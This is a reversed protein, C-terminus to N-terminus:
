KDEQALFDNIVRYATQVQPFRPPLMLFAHLADKMRYIKVISGAERLCRGYYEGEDRLPCFEATIILTRPQGSLDSELLPAFLPSYFDDPKGSYLEMFEQVRRSTLLYGTGNEKVSLFPSTESHDNFMAPYLLIQRKPHFEGRDRAMLSVAAALTGGASDGIITINEPCIGPIRGTFFERAAAYCDEPGAPFRYEPALRYDVCAVVCNTAKALDVCVGTYNEISGTVWGGGHFFLLTRFPGRGKPSFMRVPVTHGGCCVEHDCMRYDTPMGRLRATLLEFQREAKYSKKVEPELATIAKLASRMANSIAM